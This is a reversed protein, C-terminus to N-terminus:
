RGGGVGQVEQVPLKQVSKVEFTGLPKWTGTTRTPDTPDPTFIQVTWFASIQVAYMGDPQSASSRTFIHKCTNTQEAPQKTMDYVENVVQCTFPASGDGADIKMSTVVANMAFYNKGGNWLKNYTEVRDSPVPPNKTVDMGLAFFAPSNVRPIYTPSINLVPTPYSRSFSNWFQEMYPPPPEPCEAKEQPTVAELAYELHVNEGGDARDLNYDRIYARWVWTKGEPPEPLSWGPPVEYSRCHIFPWGDQARLRERWTPPTGTASTGFGGCWAGFGRANAYVACRQDGDTITHYVPTNTTPTGTGTGGDANATTVATLGACLAVLAVCAARAVRTSRVKV